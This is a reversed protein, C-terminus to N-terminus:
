SGPTELATGAAEVSLKLDVPWKQCKRAPFFPHEGLNGILIGIPSALFDSRGLSRYLIVGFKM